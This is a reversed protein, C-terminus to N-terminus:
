FRARERTYRRGHTGVKPGIQRKRSPTFLSLPEYQEKFRGERPIGVFERPVRGAFYDLCDYEDVFRSYSRRDQHGNYKPHGDTLPHMPVILDYNNWFDACPAETPLDATYKNVDANPGWLAVTAHDLGSPNSQESEVYTGLRLLGCIIHVRQEPWWMHFCACRSCLCSTRHQRALATTDALAKGSVCVMSNPCVACDEMKSIARIVITQDPADYADDPEGLYERRYDEERM